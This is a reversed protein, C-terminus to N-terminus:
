RVFGRSATVILGIGFLAGPIAQFGGESSGVGFAEIQVGESGANFLGLGVIPPRRRGALGM